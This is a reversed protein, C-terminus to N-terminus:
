AAFEINMSNLSPISIEALYQKISIPKGFDCFVRGLKNDKEQNIIKFMEALNLRVVNGSIMENALNRHEFIREYNISVPVLHITKNKDQRNSLYAQLLWLISLDPMVLENFKGSCLRM